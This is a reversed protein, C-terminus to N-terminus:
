GNGNEKEILQLACRCHCVTKDARNVAYTNLKLWDRPLARGSESAKLQDIRSEVYTEAAHRGALIKDALSPAVVPAEKPSKTRLLKMAM